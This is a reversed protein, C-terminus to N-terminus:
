TVAKVSGQGQGFLHEIAVQVLGLALFNLAASRVQAEPGVSHGHLIGGSLHGHQLEDGRTKGPHSYWGCDVAIVQDLRLNTSYLIQGSGLVDVFLDVAEEAGSTSLVSNTEPFWARANDM